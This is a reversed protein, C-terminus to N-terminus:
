ATFASLVTNCAQRTRHRPPLRAHREILYVAFQHGRELSVGPQGVVFQTFLQVEGGGLGPTTALAELRLTHDRAVPRLHIRRADPKSHLGKHLHFQRVVVRGACEVKQLQTM